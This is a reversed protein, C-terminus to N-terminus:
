TIAVARFRRPTPADAVPVAAKSARKAATHTRADLPVHRVDRRGMNGLVGRLPVALPPSALIPSPKTVLSRTLGTGQPVLARPAGRTVRLAASLASSAVPTIGERRARALRVSLVRLAKRRNHRVKPRRGNRPRGRIRVDVQADVIGMAVGVLERGPMHHAVARPHGSRRNQNTPRKSPRRKAGGGGIRGLGNAIEGIRTRPLRTRPCTRM